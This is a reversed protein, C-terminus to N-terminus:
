IELKDELEKFAKKASKTMDDLCYHEKKCCCTVTIIAVAAEIHCIAAMCWPKSNDKCSMKKIVKRVYFNPKTRLTLIAM